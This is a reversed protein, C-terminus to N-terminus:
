PAFGFILSPDAEDVIAFFSFYTTKIKFSRLQHRLVQEVFATPHSIHQLISMPSVGNLFHTGVLVAHQLNYKM